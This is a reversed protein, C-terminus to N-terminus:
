NVGGFPVSSLKGSVLQMDTRTVNGHQYGGGKSHEEYVESITSSRSLNPVQVQSNGEKTNSRMKGGDATTKNVLIRYRDCCPWSNTWSVTRTGTQHGQYSFLCRPLKLAILRMHLCRCPKSVFGNGTVGEGDELM